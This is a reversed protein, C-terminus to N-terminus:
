VYYYTLLKCKPKAYIDALCVKILKFMYTYMEYLTYHIDVHIRANCYIKFSDKRTVLDSSVSMDESAIMYLPSLYSLYSKSQYLCKMSDLRMKENVTRV